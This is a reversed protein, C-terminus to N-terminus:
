SEVGSTLYVEQPEHIYIYVCINYAYLYIMHYMNKKHVYIVYIYLIYIFILIYIVAQYMPFFMYLSHLLINMM